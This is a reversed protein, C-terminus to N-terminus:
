ADEDLGYKWISRNIVASELGTRLYFKDEMKHQVLFMQMTFEEEEEETTPQKFNQLFM